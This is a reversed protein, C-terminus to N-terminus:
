SKIAWWSLLLFVASSSALLLYDRPRWLESKMFTPSRHMSVGRSELAGAVNDGLRFLSLMFPIAIDRLKSVTGGFSMRTVKGRAIAVRTFREWEAILVPVFRLLLTITLIIRMARMPVRGGASLLQELSRRLRLPTIALPIGFGILMALWPKLLSRLSILFADTNWLSNDGAASFGAFVAIMGTFFSLTIIPGRWRHLRIRGILLILVTLITILGIGSWKQQLFMCSSLLLYSIWVARPDFAAIPSIGPARAELYRSSDIFAEKHISSRDSVSDPRSTSKNTIMGAFPLNSSDNRQQVISEALDAPTWVLNPAIGKLWLGHAIQLWDPVNMGAQELWEPHALLQERSCARIAGDMQMLLISDALALAWDSEHSILLVGQGDAACQKLKKGLMRHGGADLGATPEDLLLWESPTVFLCALATRRREGGSMQYPDRVLWSTDWGVAHMAQDMRCQAEQEPVIYPRLVYNLESEVTRAFLQEEPSQCCYSYALLAARNRKRAGIANRIWVNEAGYSIDINDDTSRLGAAMEMLRTKGAGNPGMLVTISGTNMVLESSEPVASDTIRKWGSIRLSMDQKSM